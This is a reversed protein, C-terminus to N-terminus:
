VTRGKGVKPSDGPLGQEFDAIELDTGGVQPEGGVPGQKVEAAQDFGPKGRAKERINKYPYPTHHILQTQRV